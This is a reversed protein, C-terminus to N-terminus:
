RIVKLDECLQSDLQEASQFKKIDRIYFDFNIRIKKGYLDGNFVDLFSEIVTKEVGFTPASGYNTIARYSKGGTQVTTAYVGAKLAIKKEGPCVNATPFGITRGVQRGKVVVGDIFFAAGLYEGARKVDGCSLAQKIKMTSIKEGTEDTVFDVTEFYIGKESCFRALLNVNGQGCAGFTYDKGCILGAILRNDALENLFDLASKKIFDPTYEAVIVEDAGLKQLIDMREDFTFVVNKFKDIGFSEEGFTMVVLKASFRTKLEGARKIIARHGRHLSDFGGLCIVSPEGDKKGYPAIIM